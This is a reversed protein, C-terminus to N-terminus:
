HGSGGEGLLRWSHAVVGILDGCFSRTYSHGLKAQDMYRLRRRNVVAFALKSAALM